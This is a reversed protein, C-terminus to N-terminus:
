RRGELARRVDPPMTESSLSRRILEVATRESKIVAALAMMGFCMMTPSADGLMARMTVINGEVAAYLRTFAGRRLLAEDTGIFPIIAEIADRVPAPFAALAFAPDDLRHDYDIM